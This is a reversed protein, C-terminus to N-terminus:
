KPCSELERVASWYRRWIKHYAPCDTEHGSQYNDYGPAPDGVKCAGEPELAAVEDRYRKEIRERDRPADCDVPWAMSEFHCSALLLAALVFIKKM